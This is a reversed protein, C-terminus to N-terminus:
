ASFIFSSVDAVHGYGLADIFNPRYVLRLIKIAVNLHFNLPLHTGGDIEGVQPQDSEHLRGIRAWHQARRQNAWRSGDNSRRAFRDDARENM